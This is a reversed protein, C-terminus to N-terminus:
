QKIVVYNLQVRQYRLGEGVGLARLQYDGPGLIISTSSLLDPNISGGSSWSRDMSLTKSGDQLMAQIFARDASTIGEAPKASAYATAILVSNPPVLVSYYQTSENEEAVQNTAIIFSKPASPLQKAATIETEFEERLVTKRGLSDIYLKVQENRISDFLATIEEKKDAINNLEEKTNQLVTWVVVGGIGFAAAIAVLTNRWVELSSVKERLKEFQEPTVEAM